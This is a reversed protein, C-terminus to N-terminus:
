RIEFSAGSISQAQTLPDGGPPVNAAILLYLGNPLSSPVIAPDVLFILRNPQAYFRDLRVLTNVPGLQNPATFGFFEGSPLVL